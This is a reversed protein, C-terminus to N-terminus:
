AALAPVEHQRLGYYNDQSLVRALQEDTLLLWQCGGGACWEQLQERIQGLPLPQNGNALFVRFVVELTGMDTSIYSKKRGCCERIVEIPNSGYSGRRVEFSMRGVTRDFVPQRDEVDEGIRARCSECMRAQAIDPFSLYNEDFWSTDIVYSPGEDIGQETMGM